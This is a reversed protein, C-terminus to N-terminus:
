LVAPLGCMLGCVVALVTDDVPYDPAGRGARKERFLTLFSRCLLFLFALGALILLYVAQVLVTGIGSGWSPLQAMAVGFLFIISTGQVWRASVRLSHFM